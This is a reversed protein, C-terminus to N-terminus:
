AKPKDVNAPVHTGDHWAQERELARAISSAVRAIAHDVAEFPDGHLGEVQIMRATLGVEIRCRQEGSIASFRVIVPGIREGFKGLALGLRGEVHERLGKPVKAGREHFRLKM